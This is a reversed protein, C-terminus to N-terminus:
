AIAELLHQVAGPVDLMLEELRNLAAKAAGFDNRRAASEIRFAEHTVGIIRLNGASGKLNHADAEVLAADGEWIATHMRELRTPADSLFLDFLTAILERDHNVMALLMPADICAVSSDAGHAMVAVPTRMMGWNDAIIM